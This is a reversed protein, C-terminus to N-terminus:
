PKIYENLTIIFSINGRIAQDPTITINTVQATRRNSELDTLFNIFQYYSATHQADSTVVIPLQYVGPISKVPTLQSTKSGAASPAPAAAGTSSASLGTATTGGLTSAPFTISVLKIGNAAAMNSLQRVTEAQNKDEPVISRSIQELEAYEALGKKAVKLGEKQQSLAKDKAKLTALKQSESGVLSNVEYAGAIMGVFLLCICALLIM